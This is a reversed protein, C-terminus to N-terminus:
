KTAAILGLTLAVGALVKSVGKWFKNGRTLKKNKDELAVNVKVQDNLQESVNVTQARQISDQKIHERDISDKVAMAQHLDSIEKEERPLFALAKDMIDLDAVMFSGAELPTVHVIVQYRKSLISDSEHQTLPTVLPKRMVQTFTARNRIREKTLTDKWATDRKRLYTENKRSLTLSFGLNTMALKLSDEKIKAQSLDLPKNCSRFQFLVLILIVGIAIALGIKLNQPTM